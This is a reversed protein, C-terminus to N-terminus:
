KGEREVIGHSEKPHHLELAKSLLSRLERRVEDAPDTALSTTYVTIALAKGSLHETHQTRILEYLRRRIRNRVVASKHVKRSVIIVVRYPARPESRLHVGFSKTRIPRISRYLRQIDRSGHFRHNRALV